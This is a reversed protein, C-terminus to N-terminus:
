HASMTVHSLDSVLKHCTVTNRWDSNLKLSDIGRTILKDYIVSVDSDDVNQYMTSMYFSNIIADLEVALEHCGEKDLMKWSTLCLNNGHSRPKFTQKAMLYLRLDSVKLNTFIVPIITLALVLGLLSHMFTNGDGWVDTNEAKTKIKKHVPPKLDVPAHPADMGFTCMEVKQSRQSLNPDMLSNQSSIISVQEMQSQQPPQNVTNCYLFTRMDRLTHHLHLNERQQKEATSFILEVQSSCPQLNNFHPLSMRDASEQLMRRLQNIKDNISNRYRKEVIPNSKRKKGAQLEQSDDEVQGSKINGSNEQTYLFNAASASQNREELCWGAQQAIPLCNVNSPLQRRYSVLSSSDILESATTFSFETLPDGNMSVEWLTSSQNTM